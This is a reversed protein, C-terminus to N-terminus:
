RPRMSANSESPPPFWGASGSSMRAVSVNREIAGNTKISEVDNTRIM